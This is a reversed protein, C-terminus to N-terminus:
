YPKPKGSCDAWLENEEPTAGFLAFAQQDLVTCRDQSDKKSFGRFIHDSHIIEWIHDIEYALDTQWAPCVKLRHEAVRMKDSGLQGVIQDVAVLFDAGVKEGCLWAYITLQQAWSRNLLHLSSASNYRFGDKYAFVCEKHPSSGTGWRDRFRTYGKMPSTNYQSYAGNVKWDLLIHTGAKNVFSLDPKGLLVVGGPRQILVTGQVEFEMRINSADALQSMLDALAGSGKYLNFVVLGDIRAQDRRAPEVAREFLNEFDFEPKAGKGFMIESIYSKIYTDFASGIAMPVTQPERPPRNDALYKLYFEDQSKRWTELGSPSIYTLHRM